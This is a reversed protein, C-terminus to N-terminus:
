IYELLSVRITERPIGKLRDYAEWVDDETVGTGRNNIREALRDIFSRTAKPLLQQLALSSGVSTTVSMKHKTSVRIRYKTQPLAHLLPLTHYPDHPTPIPTYQSYQEDRRWATTSCQLMPRM